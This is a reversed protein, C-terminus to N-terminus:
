ATGTMTLAPAKAPAAILMRELTTFEFAEILARIKPATTKLNVYSKFARTASMELRPHGPDVERPHVYFIVPRGEKLVSRTMRRIVPLPSVRLYGGGFFCLRRGAVSVVTVPFETLQQDHVVYPADPAEMGGHARPAPFVSADYRYGAQEVMDFFWPVRDTVSFGPARYGLVPKGAADEIVDKALAIDALFESPRMSYVLRHSYGHSAIEHGRQVAERVLHPFRRAVWGLFFCTVPVSQEAFLDLLTLFGREVRSPLRDWEAIDPTSPLDLIHFWDEVDITFVCSM